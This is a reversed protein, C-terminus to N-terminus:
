RATERASEAGCIEPFPLRTARCIVSTGYVGAPLLWYDALLFAAAIRHLIRLAGPSGMRTNRKRGAALIARAAPYLLRFMYQIGAVSLGADEGTRQLGALDYRRHHGYYEDYNSWLEARAPVAVVFGKAAPFARLLSRLFAVPEALHEIVDGLVIIAVSNRFASPLNEAAVGSFIRQELHPPVEVAALEAGFCDLGRKNLYDVFIGRGCGIDLVRGAGLLRVHRELIRNRALHWYNGESGPAYGEAYQGRTFETKPTVTTTAM